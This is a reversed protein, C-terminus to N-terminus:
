PHVRAKDERCSSIQACSRVFHHEDELLAQQAEKTCLSWLENAVICKGSRELARLDQVEVRGVERLRAVCADRAAFLQETEGPRPCRPKRAANLQAATPTQPQENLM